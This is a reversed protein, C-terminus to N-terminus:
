FDLFILFYIEERRKKLDLRKLLSKPFKLGLFSYLLKFYMLFSYVKLFFFSNKKRRPPAAAIVRRGGRRVERRGGGGGKELRLLHLYLPSLLSSRERSLLLSLFFLSFHFFITEVGKYVGEQGSGTELGFGPGHAGWDEKEEKKSETGGMISSCGGKCENM